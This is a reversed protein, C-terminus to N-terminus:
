FSITAMVTDQYSGPAPTSQAPVQGYVTIVQQNGTGVGTAMTTGNTGDGWASTHSQDVYLQYSVAGGSGDMRVMKRAVVNGSSGGNIAIRFADGNTCRANISGTASLASSLLGAPAFGINTATITCNNTVPASVTFPFSGNSTTLTACTPGLLLYFGYNISTNAATFSQTYQTTANNVTPVTPQNAGVQGYVTVTTTLSTGTPKNLTVSIPTGGTLASGWAITHGMDTYLDYSLQNTGNVLARPSTGGLNLCVLVSPLLTVAPWTCTVDITGTAAVASMAIPNVSGFMVGSSSATCTQADAHGSVGALGVLLTIAILWQRIM